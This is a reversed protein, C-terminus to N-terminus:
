IDHIEKKIKDLNDFMLLIDKPNEKKGSKIFDLFAEQSPLKGLKGLCFIGGRKPGCIPEDSTWVPQWGYKMMMLEISNLSFYRHHRDNFYLKSESQPHGRGELLLYAGEKSARSCLELTINPDYVHELSGLIMIFSYKADELEMEEAGVAEVPLGMVEKGYKLFGEDLDTGYADWGNEIFPMLMTGVSCGVDLVSAPEDFYKKIFDYLLEGRYIQDELFEQGPELEGLVSNRYHRTYYDKYFEKNFRPNQFLFGCRNCAVVPMKGFFDKGISIIERITTYETCDCIECPIDKSIYEGHLKLHALYDKLYQQM